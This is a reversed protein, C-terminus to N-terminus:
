EAAVRLADAPGRGLSLDRSVLRLVCAAVDGALARYVALRRAFYNHLVVAPIAAVLGCATALLAEAIGPAVVALSTSKSHAINVFSDMIGWVTGFLGVFPAVAGTTALLGTGAAIRRSADALIRELHSAVREKLGERDDLALASRRWEECAAELMAAAAPSQGARRPDGAAALTGSAALEVSARRLAALALRIEIWKVLAVTWTAVSAVALLVMVTKVAPGAALFMGWEDIRVTEM